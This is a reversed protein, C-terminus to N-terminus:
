ATQAFTTSDLNFASNLQTRLREIDQSTLKGMRIKMAELNNSCFTRFGKLTDRDTLNGTTLPGTMGVYYHGNRQSFNWPFESDTDVVEGRQGLEPPRRKDSFYSDESTIAASKLFMEQLGTYKALAASDKLSSVVHETYLRRVLGRPCTVIYTRELSDTQVLNSLNSSSIKHATALLIRPLQALSEELAARFPASAGLSQEIDKRLWRRARAQGACWKAPLQELYGKLLQKGKDTIWKEVNDSDLIEGTLKLGKATWRIVGM